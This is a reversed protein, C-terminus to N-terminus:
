KSARFAMDPILTQAGMKVLCKMWKNESLVVDTAMKCDPLPLSVNTWAHALSIQSVQVAQSTVEATHCMEPAERRSM